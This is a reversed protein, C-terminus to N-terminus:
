RSRKKKIFILGGIGLGGILFMYFIPTFDFETTDTPSPQPPPIIIPIDVTVSRINSYVSDGDLNCAIIKYQYTGDSLGSDIYSISTTTKILSFSGGDKSRYVKFSDTGTPKSWFLSITGDTDTSPSISNLTPAAPPVPPVYISVIVSKINSYPSDGDANYAIIKYEYTGDSLGSDIYSISTTTKILSFSGGDKSRYVKFSNTGTPKSWFLSITGDTDISPSITSLVPANPIVPINVIVSITNSYGSIGDNNYANVKYSYSGDIESFAYSTSTLTKFLAYAGGDASRFINFGTAYVPNSWSLTISGDTDPSQITNLTPASPPYIMIMVEVFVVNSSESVGLPNYAFVEYWYRGDSVLTDVYSTATTTTLLDFSTMSRGRYVFFEQTEAPRSWSIEISGDINPSQITNLTPANPITTYTPSGGGGDGDHLTFPVVTVFFILLISLGGIIYLFKKNTKNKKKIKKM